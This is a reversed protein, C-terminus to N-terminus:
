TRSALLDMGEPTLQYGDGEQSFEFEIWGAGELKRLYSRAAFLRRARGQVSGYTWFSVNFQEVSIPEQRAIIRLARLANPTLRM